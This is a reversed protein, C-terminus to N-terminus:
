AAQTLKSEIYEWVTRSACARYRAVELFAGCKPCRTLTQDEAFTMEYGCCESSYIGEHNANTGTKVMEESSRHSNLVASVNHKAFLRRTNFCKLQRPHVTM